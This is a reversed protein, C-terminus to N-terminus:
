AWLMIEIYEDSHRIEVPFKKTKYFRQTAVVEYRGPELGQIMFEGNDDTLAFAPSWVPAGPDVPRVVVTANWVPRGTIDYVVGRLNVSIGTVELLM